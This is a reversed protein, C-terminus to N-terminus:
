NLNKFNELAENLLQEDDVQSYNKCLNNNDLIKNLYNIIEIENKIQFIEMNFQASFEVQIRAYLRTDNTLLFVFCKAHLSQFNNIEECLL